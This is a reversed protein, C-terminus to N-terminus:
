QPVLRMYHSKGVWLICVARLTNLDAGDPLVELIRSAKPQGQFVIIALSLMNSLVAMEQAGGWEGNRSMIDLYRDLPMDFNWQVWDRIAVGNIRRDPVRCWQIVHQRLRAASEGISSGVASFLCNGDHPVDEVGWTAQV